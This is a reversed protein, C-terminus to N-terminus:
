RAPGPEKTDWKSKVFGESELLSLTRYIAGPDTGSETFGLESYRDTLEYGHSPKEALLLLLSPILFRNSRGSHCSCNHTKNNKCNENVCM